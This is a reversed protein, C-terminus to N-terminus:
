LMLSSEHSEAQDKAISRAPAIARFVFYGTFFMVTWLALDGIWALQNQWVLMSVALHSQWFDRLYGLVPVGVLLFLAFWHHSGRWFRWILLYALGGTILFSTTYLPLPLQGVLGSANYYWQSTHIAIADGVINLLAMVLGGALSALIVKGPPHMFLLFIGYFLLIVPVVLVAFARMDM